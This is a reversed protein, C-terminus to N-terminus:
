SVEPLDVKLIVDEEALQEWIKKLIEIDAQEIRTVLALAGEALIAVIRAVREAPTYEVEM